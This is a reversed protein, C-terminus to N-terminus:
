GGYYPESYIKLMSRFNDFFVILMQSIDEEDSVLYRLEMGTKGDFEVDELVDKLKVNDLTINLNMIVKRHAEAIKRELYEDELFFKKGHQEFDYDYFPM